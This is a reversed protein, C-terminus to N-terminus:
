GPEDASGTREDRILRVVDKIADSVIQAHREDTVISLHDADPVVIVEASAALTGLDEQLEGWVEADLADDAVHGAALVTLPRAGLDGSAAVRVDLEPLHRVEDLHARMHRPSMTTAVMAEPVGEPLTDMTGFVDGLLRMVGFRSLTLGVEMTRTGEDIWAEYGEIREALAPHRADVLVVGLVDDPYVQTFLRNYHGGLSHGVLVFPGAEAAASLLSRLDEVVRDAHFERRAAGSWGYGARDYSCVRTEGAVEPQVWAWVLSSSGAGSELVVTPSGEGLCHLHLSVGDVVYLEGPPPYRRASTAAAVLEFVLGVTLLALVGLVLGIVMKRATRSRDSGAPKGSVPEHSM